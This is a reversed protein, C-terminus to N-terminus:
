IWNLEYYIMFELYQRISLIRLIRVGIKKLDSTNAFVEHLSWQLKFGLCSACLTSLLERGLITLVMFNMFCSNSIRGSLYISAMRSVSVFLLLVSCIFSLLMMSIILFNSSCFVNSSVGLSRTFSRVPIPWFKLYIIEM